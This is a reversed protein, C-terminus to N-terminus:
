MTDPKNRVQGRAARQPEVRDASVDALTIRGQAYPAEGIARTQPQRGRICKAGVLEREFAFNDRSGMCFDPDLRASTEEDLVGFRTTPREQVM